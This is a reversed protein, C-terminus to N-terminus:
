PLAATDRRAESPEAELVNRSKFAGSITDFVHTQLGEPLEVAM